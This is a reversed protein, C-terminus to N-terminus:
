HCRWNLWFWVFPAAFLLALFAGIVVLAVLGALLRSPNPWFSNDGPM